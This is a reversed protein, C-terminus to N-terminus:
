GLAFLLRLADELIEIGHKGGGAGITGVENAGVLIVCGYLRHRRILLDPAGEQAPPNRGRGRDRLFPQQEGIGVHVHLRDRHDRLLVERDLMELVRM